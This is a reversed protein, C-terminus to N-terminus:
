NLEFLKLAQGRRAVTGPLDVVLDIEVAFSGAEKAVRQEGFFPAFRGHAGHHLCLRTDVYVDSAAMTRMALRNAYVYGPPLAHGIGDEAQGARGNAAAVVAAVALRPKLRFPKALGTNGQALEARNLM